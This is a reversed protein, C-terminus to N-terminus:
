NKLVDDVLAQAVDRLKRNTRMSAERLVDFARDSDCHLQGMVIGKAQEIVARSAMAQQMQSVEEMAGAFLSANTLAVAAYAAFGGALEISADSLGPVEDDDRRYRYVNLAGTVRHIVPLGVALTTGVGERDALSAFDLYLDPNSTDPISIARGTLAADLCPGAGDVYQREDLAAAVRSGSCFAVTAPRHDQILTVSVDDAGPVVSLTLDAIRRMTAVLSRETLVMKALETYAASALHRSDPGGLAEAADGFETGLETGLEASDGTTSLNRQVDDTM